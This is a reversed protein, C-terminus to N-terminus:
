TELESSDMETNRRKSAGNCPLPSTQTEVAIKRVADSEDATNPTTRDDNDNCLGISLRLQIKTADCIRHFQFFDNIKKFCIDIITATKKWRLNILVDILAILKPQFECELGFFSYYVRVGVYKFQQILPFHEPLSAM